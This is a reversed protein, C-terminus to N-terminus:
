NCEAEIVIELQDWNSTRCRSVRPVAPDAFLHGPRAAGESGNWRRGPFHRSTPRLSDVKRAGTGLTRVRPPAHASPPFSLSCGSGGFSPETWAGSLRLATTDFSPLSGAPSLSDSGLGALVCWIDVGAPNVAGVVLGVGWM